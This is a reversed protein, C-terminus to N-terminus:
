IRGEPALVDVTIDGPEIFVVQEDSWSAVMNQARQHEVLAQQVARRLVEEIMKGHVIFLDKSQYIDVSM